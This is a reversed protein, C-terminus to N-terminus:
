PMPMHRSEKGSEMEVALYLGRWVLSDPEIGADDLAALMVRYVRMDMYFRDAHDPNVVLSCKLTHFMDNVACGGSVM